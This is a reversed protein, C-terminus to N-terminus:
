RIVVSFTIFGTENSLDLNYSVETWRVRGWDLNCAEPGFQVIGRDM